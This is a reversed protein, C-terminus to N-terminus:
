SYNSRVLDDHSVHYCSSCRFFAHSKLVRASLVASLFQSHFSRVMWVKPGSKPFELQWSGRGAAADPSRSLCDARLPAALKVENPEPILNTRYVIHPGRNAERTFARNRGKALDPRIQGTMASLAEIESLDLQKVM